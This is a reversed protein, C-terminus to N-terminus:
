FPMETPITEVLKNDSNWYNKYTALLWNEVIDYRPKDPLVNRLLEDEIGEEYATLQKTLTTLSMDGSRIDKLMVLESNSLPFKLSGNRAFEYGQMALRMAHMGYKTDYGHRQELEHRNVDRGGREDLLRMRQATLYGLFAKVAQKSAFYPALEQLQTAIPTYVSFNNKPLYLMTILNPNGVLALKVFKRLGYITLDIDGAESKADWSKTRDYATRYITQEFTSFGIIDKATELCIGMEDVDSNASELGLCTSGVTALMILTRSNIANTYNAYSRADKM